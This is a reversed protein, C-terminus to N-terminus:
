NTKTHALPYKNYEIAALRINDEGELSYPIVVWEKLIPQAYHRGEMSSLTSTPFIVHLCRVFVVGTLHGWTVDATSLYHASTVQTSFPM